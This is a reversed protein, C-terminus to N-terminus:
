SLEGTEFRARWEKIHNLSYAIFGLVATLNTHITKSRVGKPFLVQRRIEAGIKWRAFHRLTSTMDIM